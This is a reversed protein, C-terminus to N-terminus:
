WNEITREVVRRALDLTAAEVASSESTALAGSVFYTAEGAFGSEEWLIEDYRRDKLVLSVIVHVRYEQVEDDDTYRLAVREYNILEGSLILDAENEERVKLNGDFLFRDIIANRVKVELLPFYLQRDTSTTYNIKNPFPKIHITQLRSPLASQTTYGCGGALLFITLVWSWVHSLKKM